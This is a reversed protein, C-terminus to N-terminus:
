NLKRFPDIQIVGLFSVSPCLLQLQVALTQLRISFPPSFISQLQHMNLHQVSRLIWNTFLCIYIYSSMNLIVHLQFPEIKLAIINCNTIGLLLPFLPKEFQTNKACHNSHINQFKENTTTCIIAARCVDRKQQFIWYCRSM